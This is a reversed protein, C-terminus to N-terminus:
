IPTYMYPVDAKPQRDGFIAGMSLGTGLFGLAAVAAIAAASAGACAGGGRRRRGVEATSGGLGCAAGEARVSRGGASGGLLM